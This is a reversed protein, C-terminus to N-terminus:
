GAIAGSDGHRVEKPEGIRILCKGIQSDPRTLSPPRRIRASTPANASSTPSTRPWMGQLRMHLRSIKVVPRWRRRAGAILFSCVAVYAAVRSVAVM